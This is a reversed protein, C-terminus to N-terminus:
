LVRDYMGMERLMAASVPFLVGEPTFSRRALVNHVLFRHIRGNGDLFPHVFVFGFAAAAAAWVPHVPNEPDLLKAVMRMWGDMLAGVDEPKPCIFHVEQSYDPRTAGIFVQVTRWDAQAYRPDVIANQLQVFSEKKTPDFKDAKMLAAVFRETRDKSPAEGEIAFSSKTEKTFLYHVARKLVGPDVESVIKQAQGALNKNLDTKLKETRRLLPCYDKNGLLNDFVRQRRVRIPPGAIHLDEDLLDIYRGSTLDDVNLVKGTLWEYLYWARRAFIGNPENQIWPEIEAREIRQFAAKYVRLDLPEYRLAFRLQGIIGESPQYVRPYQELVQTSTVTTKRTGAVLESRVAPYPVKLGLQDIVATLGIPTKWTRDDAM